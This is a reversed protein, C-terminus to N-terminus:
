SVAVARNLLELDIRRDFAAIVEPDHTVVLLAADHEACVKKLLALAERARVPDLSGTPEDALVLGPNNALARAVAVRQQQGVSLRSPPDHLRDGLGVCELLARARAANVGAGFSMALEVNELASFGQLLHFTQYVIGIRDARLRDCEAEGLATAETEGIWIKGSDPRIIGAILHLLTTKGSGSEGRCVAQEGQALELLAIDLVPRVAGDPTVFDKRVSEM